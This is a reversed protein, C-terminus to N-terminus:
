KVPTGITDKADSIREEIEQIRSNINADIAGSKKRLNEIELATARQSKKTTEIETKLDLITKSLEKMQKNKNEKLEKLYKQTEEKLVEAKQSLNEQM